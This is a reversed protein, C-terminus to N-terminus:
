RLNGFANDVFALGSITETIVGNVNMMSVSYVYKGEELNGTQEPTLSISYTGNGEEVVSTAFPIFKYVTGGEALADQAMSHKALNASFTAGTLDVPSRDPNTLFFVQSFDNGRSITINVSFSAM